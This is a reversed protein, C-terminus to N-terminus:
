CGVDRPGDNRRGEREERRGSSRWQKKGVPHIGYGCNFIDPAWPCRGMVECLTAYELNTLGAGFRLPSMLIGGLCALYFVHEKVGLTTVFTSQTVFPSAPATAASSCLARFM